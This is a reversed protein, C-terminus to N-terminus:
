GISEAVQFIPLYLLVVILGIMLGIVLMLLPGFLRSVMEVWRGMEEDHFTAIRDMMEGMAGTQEGVRILRLSVPTVLGYEELARSAPMGEAIRATAQVLGPRLAPALLEAVMNLATTFPIGGRLLMGLTRYCRSLHFVRLREGVASSRWLRASFWARVFPRQLLRFAGYAAALAMASALLGYNEAFRGWELMVRSLWPLDGHLDEYIRSFRPVVFGLLFVIILGGVVMLLLPYVSASVLKGRLDDLQNQYAIYRRLAEDLDSTKESARVTAIYLPPFVQPTSELATSLSRGERLALIIGSLIDRTGQQREKEALVELAEVVTLGSELLALLEQSFLKLPFKQRGGKLGALLGGGSVSLVAYGQQAAQRGAEAASVAELSLRSLSGDGALVKVDFRM